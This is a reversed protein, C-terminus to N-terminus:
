YSLQMRKQLGLQLMVNPVTTQRIEALEILLKLREVSFNEMQENLDVYEQHEKSNLEERELKAVLEDYRLKTEQPILTYIQYVLGLEKVQEDDATRRLVLQLVENGFLRLNNTDLLAIGQLISKLDIQVATNLEMPSSLNKLYFVHKKFKM